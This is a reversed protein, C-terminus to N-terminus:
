RASTAPSCYSTGEAYGGKHNAFSQASRHLTTIQRIGQKKEANFEKDTLELNRVLGKGEPTVYLNDATPLASGLDLSYPKAGPAYSYKTSATTAADLAAKRSPFKMGALEAAPNPIERYYPVSPDRIMKPIDLTWTKGGDTTRVLSEGKGAFKQVAGGGSMRVVPESQQAFNFMGGMGGTAMGEEDDEYGAIGGDAMRQMNPTPLQAIGQDEPLGGSAMGTTVPGGYGTQLTGGSGTMVPTAMGAISQDAVTPQPGANQGQAALRLAKRRNSEATALSRIYPDNKQMRAYNQLASDPQLKALTQTILDVNPVSGGTPLQTFAM